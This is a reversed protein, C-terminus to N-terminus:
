EELLWRYASPFFKEKPKERAVSMQALSLQLDSVLWQGGPKTMYIEGEATGDGGFLRVTATIEGDEHTKAAGLRFSSPTTGQELGYGLTDSLSTKSEPAIFSKDVTGKTLRALFKEAVGLAAQVDASGTREDALPGIKFDEPMTTRDRDLAMLMAVSALTRPPPAQGQVPIDPSLTIPKSAAPPQAPSPQPAPDPPAASAARNPVPTRPPQASAGQPQGAQVVATSVADAKPSAAAPKRPTKQCSSFLLTLLLIMILAPKRRV